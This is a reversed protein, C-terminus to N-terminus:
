RGLLNGHGGSSGAQEGAAEAQQAAGERAPQAAALLLVGGGDVLVGDGLADGLVALQLLRHGADEVHAVLQLALEVLPADLQRAGQLVHSASRSSAPTRLSASSAL